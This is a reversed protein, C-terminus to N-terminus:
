YIPDVLDKQSHQDDYITDDDAQSGSLRTKEQRINQLSIPSESTSTYKSNHDIQHKYNAGPHSSYRNFVEHYEMQQRELDNQENKQHESWTNKDSTYNQFYKIKIDDQMKGSFDQSETNNTFLTTEGGTSKLGMTTSEENSSTKLGLSNDGDKIKPSLIFM